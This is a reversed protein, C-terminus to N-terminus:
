ETRKNRASEVEGAPGPGDKAARFGLHHLSTDGTAAMRASPRYSACYSDNCLFSGGRQVYQDNATPPGGPGRPNVIVGAGGVAQVRRAYEDARYRDSCWEWVNGAMDFLGYGNPPYSGVPAALAHGDEKLNQHPFEGQWTNARTHDIPENGWVNMKGELGGRAAFEWEAETPLRKGAWACYARADAHTVHVVPYRGKGEISSGPGEPHRWSAGATWRWWQGPNGTDVKQRPPSFVPSGPRLAEDPPRPTGKPLQKSLEEWNVPKEADTVYGTAEVFRRFEDNTVETADIWFGDVRVRHLPSENERALADKGGMTFEGGPIWVMGPPATGPDDGRPEGGATLPAAIGAVCVFIFPLSAAGRRAARATASARLLSAGAGRGNERQACM